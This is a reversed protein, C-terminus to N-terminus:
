KSGEAELMRDAITWADEAVGTWTGGQASLLGTLAAAAFMDRRARREHHDCAMCTSCPYTDVDLRDPTPDQSV